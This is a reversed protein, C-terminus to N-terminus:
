IGYVVCIDDDLAITLVSLSPRSCLLWRKNAGGSVHSSLIPFYPKIFINCYICAKVEEQTDATDNKFCSKYYGVCSKVDLVVDCLMWLSLMFTKIKLFKKWSESDFLNTRVQDQDVELTGNEVETM